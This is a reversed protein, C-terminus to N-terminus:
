VTILDIGLVHIHELKLVRDSENDPSSIQM